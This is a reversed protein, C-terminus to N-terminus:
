FLWKPGKSSLCTPADLTGRRNHCALTAETLAAQGPVHVTSGEKKCKRMPTSSPGNNDNGKVCVARPLLLSQSV